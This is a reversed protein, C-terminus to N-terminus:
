ETVEPEEEPYLRFIRPEECEKESKKETYVKGVIFGAVIGIAGAAAAFIFEKRM